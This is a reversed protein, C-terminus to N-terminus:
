RSIFYRFMTFLGYNIESDKESVSINWYIRWNFSIFHGSDGWVSLETNKLLESKRPKSASQGESIFKGVVTFSLNVSDTQSLNVTNPQWHSKNFMVVNNVAKPYGIPLTGDSLFRILGIQTKARHIFYWHQSTLCWLWVIM